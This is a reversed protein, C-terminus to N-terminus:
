EDVERFSVADCVVGVACTNSLWNRSPYLDHLPRLALATVFVRLAQALEPATLLAELSGTALACSYMTWLTHHRAVVM